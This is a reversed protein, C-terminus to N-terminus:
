CIVPFGGCVSFGLFQCRVWIGVECWCWAGCRFRLDGFCWDCFGFERFALCTVAVRFLWFNLGFVLGGVEWFVWELCLFGGLCWFLVFNQRICGFGWDLCWVILIVLGLDLVEFAGFCVFKVGSGVSVSLLIGFSAFWM